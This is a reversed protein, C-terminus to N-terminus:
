VSMNLDMDIVEGVGGRLLNMHANKKFGLLLTVYIDKNVISVHGLWSSYFTNDDFLGALSVLLKQQQPFFKHSKHINVNKQRM